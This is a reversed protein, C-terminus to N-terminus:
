FTLLTENAGGPLRRHEVRGAFQQVMWLGLRRERHPAPGPAKLAAAATDFLGGDDCIRLLPAGHEGMEVSIEMWGATGHEEINCLLEDAAASLSWALEQSFGHVMAEALLAERVARLRAPTVPARFARVFIPVAPAM